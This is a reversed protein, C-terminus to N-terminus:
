NKPISLKKQMLWEYLFWIKRSYQSLPESNIWQEIQGSTLKEFLKKFFLLNLGEYKIAFVLHDYISEKPQHRLTFISWGEISYQRHKESILALQRPIPIQLSLFEILAGYGVLNGPEPAIRGHFVNIKQSIQKNNM